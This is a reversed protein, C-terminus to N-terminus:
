TSRNTDIVASRARRALSPRNTVIGQVGRRYLQEMLDADDITWVHVPVEDAAARAWFSPTFVPVGYMRMPVQLADFPWKRGRARGIRACLAFHLVERPSASTAISGSRSRVELLTKHQFSAALVRDTADCAAVVRLFDAVCASGPQKIDVNVRHAPYRLLVDRLTPIYAGQGCFPYTKGDPSFRYGFDLQRLEGYTFDCIRGRGDSTRDVTPDHCVVAVGDKTWHVDTELVDAGRQVALDFALLTNEPADASDGKHAIVFPISAALYPRVRRTM